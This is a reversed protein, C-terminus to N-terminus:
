YNFNTMNLIFINKKNKQLLEILKKEGKDVGWIENALKIMIFWVDNVANIFKDEIDYNEIKNNM